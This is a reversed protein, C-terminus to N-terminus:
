CRRVNIGESGVQVAAASQLVTVHDAQNGPWPPIESLRNGCRSLLDQEPFSLLEAAIPFALEARLHCSHPLAFAASAPHNSIACLFESVQAESPAEALATVRFRARAPAALAPAICAGALPMWSKMTSITSRHAAACTTQSMM